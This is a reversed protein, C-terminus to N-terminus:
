FYCCWSSFGYRPAPMYGTWDLLLMCWQSCQVFVDLHGFFSLCCSKVISSLPPQNTMQHVDANRVFDHWHIDLIKWLCWLDLADIRQQNSLMLVWLASDPTHLGHVSSTVLVLSWRYLSHAYGNCKVSALSRGIHHCFIFLMTIMSHCILASLNTKTVKFYQAALLSVHYLMLRWICDLETESCVNAVTRSYLQKKPRCLSQLTKIYLQKLWSSSMLNSKSQREMGLNWRQSVYQVAHHLRNTPCRPQMSSAIHQLTCVTQHPSQSASTHHLTETWSLEECSQRPLPRLYSCSYKM